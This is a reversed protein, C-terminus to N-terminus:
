KAQPAWIEITVAGPKNGIATQIQVATVTVPSPTLAFNAVSAGNVLVSLQFGGSVQFGVFPWAPNVAPPAAPSTVPSAPEISNPLNANWDGSFNCKGHFTGPFSISINPELIAMEPM